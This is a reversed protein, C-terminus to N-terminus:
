TNLVQVQEQKKSNVNKIVTSLADPNKHDEKVQKSTTEDTTSAEPFLNNVLKPEEIFDKGEKAIHEIQEEHKKTQENLDEAAKKGKEKVKEEFGLEFLFYGM